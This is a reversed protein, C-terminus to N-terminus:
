KCWLSGRTDATNPVVASGWSQIFRTRVKDLIEADQFILGVERAKELSNKTLNESGLYITQEDVIIIKAHWYNAGSVSPKPLVKADIGADILKQIPKVNHQPSSGITCGPAMVQIQVNRKHTKILAQIIEPHDLNEVGVILSKQASLILDSLKTKSNVPSFLLNQNKLSPTVGEDDSANRWDSEFVETLEDIVNANTTVVGFDVFDKSTSHMNMSGVVAYSSDVIFSKMHTVTFFKSSKEVEIGASKLRKMTKRTRSDLFSHREAIVRVRVGKSKAAVLAEAIAEDTLHFAVLRIEKQAKGIVKVMTAFPQEAPSMFFELQGLQQISSIDAAFIKGTFALICILLGYQLNM